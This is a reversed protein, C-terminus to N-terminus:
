NVLINHNTEKTESHHALEDIQKQQEELKRQQEEFKREFMKKLEEIENKNDEESKMKKCIKLHKCLNSKNSYTKECYSCQNLTNIPKICPIVRSVHYDYTSKKNFKVECTYCTYIKM